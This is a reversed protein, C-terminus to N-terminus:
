NKWEYQFLQYLKWFSIHYLQRQSMHYPPTIDQLNSLPPRSSPWNLDNFPESINKKMAAKISMKLGHTTHCNSLLLVIHFHKSM